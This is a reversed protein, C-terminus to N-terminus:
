KSVKTALRQGLRKLAASRKRYIPRLQEAYRECLAKVEDRESCKRCLRTFGGSGIVLGECTLCYAIQCVECTQLFGERNCCDCVEVTKEPVTVKM